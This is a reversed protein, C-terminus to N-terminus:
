LRFGRFYDPSGSKPPTTKRLTSISLYKRPVRKHRGTGSNGAGGGWAVDDWAVDDWAGGGWAGGGSAGGCRAMDYCAVM